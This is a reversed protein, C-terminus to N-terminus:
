HTRAIIRGLTEPEVTRLFAMMSLSLPPRVEFPGGLEALFNPWARELYEQRRFFPHLWIWELVWHRGDTFEHPDFECAGFARWDPHRENSAFIWARYEREVSVEFPPFDYRFERKFYYGFQEVTRRHALPSTPLVPVLKQDIGKIVDPLYITFPDRTRYDGVM